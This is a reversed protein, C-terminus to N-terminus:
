GDHRHAAWVVVAASSRVAITAAVTIVTAAARPPRIHTRTLAVAVWCHGQAAVAQRAIAVGDVAVVAHCVLVAPSDAPKNRALKQVIQTENGIGQVM